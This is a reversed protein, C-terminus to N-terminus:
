SATGPGVWKRQAVVAVYPSTFGNPIEPLGVRQLCWISKSAWSALRLGIAPRVRSGPGNFNVVGFNATMLYSARLVSLGCSQHAKALERPTLPVHARYLEVDVVRQLAGTLGRMNPIVTILVGGPQLFAALAGIIGTTPTFHEALGMSFVVKYRGRLLGPPDLIDGAFIRTQTGCRHAIANSLECGETSNDIGEAVLGFQRAFYPLFVSGGCGAELLYDGDRIGLSQFTSQFFVHWQRPTTGNLGRQNPDLPLPVARHAWVRDWHQTNTLAQLRADNM